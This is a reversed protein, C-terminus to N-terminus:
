GANEKPQVEAEIDIDRPLAFIRPLNATLQKPETSEVQIPGGDAGGIAVAVHRGYRAPFMRELLWKADDSDQPAKKQIIQILNIECLARAKSVADMFEFYPTGPEARKGKEIWLYAAATTIGVAQCAIEMTIGAQLVGVITNAIEATLKSRAGKGTTNANGKFKVRIRQPKATPNGAGPTTPKPM